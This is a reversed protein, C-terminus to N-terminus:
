IKWCTPHHDGVIILPSSRSATWMGFWLNVTFTTLFRVWFVWQRIFVCKAILWRSTFLILTLINNCKKIFKMYMTQTKQFFRDKSKYWRKASWQQQCAYPKPWSDEHLVVFTAYSLIEPYHWHQFDLERPWNYNKFLWKRKSEYLSIGDQGTDAM